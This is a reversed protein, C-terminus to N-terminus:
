SFPLFCNAKEGKGRKGRRNFFFSCFPLPLLWFFFQHLFFPSVNTAFSGTLTTHFLTRHITKRRFFHVRVFFIQNKKKKKKEGRFEHKRVVMSFEEVISLKYIISTTVEIKEGFFFFFFFNM